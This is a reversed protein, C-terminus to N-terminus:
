QPKCGARLKVIALRPKKCNCATAKRIDTTLISGLYKLKSVVQLKMGDIGNDSHLLNTAESSVIMVNTKPISIEM